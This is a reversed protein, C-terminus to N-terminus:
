ESKLHYLSVVPDKAILEYKMALVADLTQNQQPDNNLVIWKPPDNELLMNTDVLVQPDYRGWWEQMTFYQYCPTIEAKLFWGAPKSYGLVSDLEAAPILNKITLADEYYSNNPQEVM